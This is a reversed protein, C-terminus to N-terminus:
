TMRNDLHGPLWGVVTQKTEEDWFFYIALCYRDDKTTGKRLHLELLRRHASGIPYRVYYTEGQEGARSKSISEDYRLGLEHLRADFADKAGGRRLRMNRYENALMLLSRYVLTVDEYPADKIGRTARPHLVLRGALHTGVWDPLDDYNDPIAIGADPDRGTRDVLRGHLTDVQARLRENELAYSERDRTAQASQETLRELEYELERVRARLAAVEDEYLRRWEVTERATKRSLEAHITRAENLFVREGWDVHRDAAQKGAQDILFEVFAREHDLHRYHFFEIRDALASPHASPLDEDFNLGPRYTRVAGLYASWPKSVFDTWKFGLQHPMLVVYALGQTRRALDEHDLLYPALLKLGTKRADPQTLMFVPLARRRNTLFEHFAFLDDETQLQWPRGDLPRLEWLGVEAALRPVLTPVICPVEDDCQAPSVCTTRLGFLVSVDRRCLSIDVTWSRGPVGPRGGYFLDPQSLRATWIGVEPVAVAEIRQHAFGEVAFGDGQLATAPLPRPHRDQLWRAAIEVCRRFTNEPGASGCPVEAALQYGSQVKHQEGEVPALASPQSVQPVPPVYAAHDHM